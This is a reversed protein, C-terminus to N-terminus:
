FFNAKVSLQVSPFEKNDQTLTESKPLNNNKNSKIEENQHNIVEKPLDSIEQKKEYTIKKMILCMMFAVKIIM